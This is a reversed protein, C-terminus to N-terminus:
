GSLARQLYEQESIEGNDRRERLRDLAEQRRVKAILTQAKGLLDVAARLTDPALGAPVEFGEELRDLARVVEAEQANGPDLAAIIGGAMERAQAPAVGIADILQQWLSRSPMSAAASYPAVFQRHAGAHHSPREPLFGAMEGASRGAGEIPTLARFGSRQRLPLLHPPPTSGTNSRRADPAVPGVEALRDIEQVFLDRLPNDRPIQSAMARGQQSFNAKAELSNLQGEQGCEVLLRAIVFGTLSVSQRAALQVFQERGHASLYEDPDLNDPLTLFSVNVGPQLLALMTQATKWAAAQGPPDGDFLFCVNRTFRLLLRVHDATLATGMAAVSNSLGHMALAVVDMYGEVVYAQKSRMIAARAEHLGYLVRHKSFLVTEPSNLYKAAKPNNNHIVRGGFGIVRGRTDRIPFMLRDRFRDFRRGHNPGDDEIRVVLGVDILDQNAQYDDFLQALATTQAPAFGIGYREIVEASLGREQTAYHLAKADSALNRAYAEAVSQCVETLLEYRRRQVAPMPSQGPASTGSERHVPVGLHAALHEVTEVFSMGDHQMLFEFVDGDAGCGFCHYRQRTPSVHFSPSKEGHFPCLGVFSTGAKKLAMRAGIEGVIDARQAIKTLTDETFRGSRSTNNDNV